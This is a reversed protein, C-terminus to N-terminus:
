GGGGGGMFALVGEGWGCDARWGGEGGGGRAAEGEVQGALALLSGVDARRRPQPPLVHHAPPSPPAQM